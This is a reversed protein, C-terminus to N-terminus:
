KNEFACRVNSAHRRSVEIEQGESLVLYYSGATNKLMKKIHRINVLTSRHTRIFRNQFQTELEKLTQNSLTEGGEHIVSLYKHDARFYFIKQIPIREQGNWTHAIFVEDERENTSLEQLAKLHAQSLKKAQKLARALEEERVPKLLYGVANAQFAKLAYEDYATCFIIAPPPELDAILEAAEIGDVEPMRIDLLALDPHHQRALNIATQGNDAQAIVKFGELKDIMRCLRDRALSEDDAILVSLDNPM